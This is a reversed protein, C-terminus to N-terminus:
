GGPCVRSTSPRKADPAIVAVLKATALASDNAEAVLPGPDPFGALSALRLDTEDGTARAATLIMIKLEADGDTM